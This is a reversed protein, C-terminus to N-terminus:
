QLLLLVGALLAGIAPVGVMLLLPRHHPPTKATVALGLRREVENIARVARHSGERMNDLHVTMLLGVIGVSLLGAALAPEGSASLKSLIAGSAVLFGLPAAWMQLTYARSRENLQVLQTRLSEDSAPDTISAGASERQTLLLWLALFLVGVGMCELVARRRATAARVLRAEAPRVETLAYDDKMGDDQLSTMLAVDHDRELQTAQLVTTGESYALVSALLALLAIVPAARELISRASIAM